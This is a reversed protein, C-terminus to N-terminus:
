EKEKYTSFLKERERLFSVGSKKAKEVNYTARRGIGEVFKKSGKEVTKVIDEAIKKSM